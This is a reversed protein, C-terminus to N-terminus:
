EVLSDAAPESLRLEAFIGIKADHLRRLQREFVDDRPHFFGSHRRVLEPLPVGDGIEQVLARAQTKRENVIPWSAIVNAPYLAVHALCLSAAVFHGWRHPAYRVAALYVAVLLPCLLTVYRPALVFRDGMGSRGWAIAAALGLHAVIVLALGLRPLRTANSRNRGRYLWYLAAASLGISAVALPYGIVQVAAGFVMGCELIVHRVLQVVDGAPPLAAQRPVFALLCEVPIAILFFGALVRSSKSEPQERDRRWLLYAGFYPTMALGCIIGAASCLPWAALIMGLLALQTAHPRDRGVVLAAAICALCGALVLQIQFSMVLNAAHGWNLLLCPFFADTWSWRGRLNRIVLLLGASTVSLCFLSAFMGARFEHGTLRDLGALILRPIFIRHENHPSWLVDWTLRQDGTVFPVIADWEDWHPIPIGFWLVLGGTVVTLGAWCLWVFRATRRNVFIDTTSATHHQSRSSEAEAAANPRQGTRPQLAPPADAARSM